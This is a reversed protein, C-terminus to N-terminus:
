LTNYTPKDVWRCSPESSALEMYSCSIFREYFSSINDQEMPHLRTKSCKGCWNQYKINLFTSQRRHPEPSYTENMDGGVFTKINLRRERDHRPEFLGLGERTLHWNRLLHGLLLGGGILLSGQTKVYPRPILRRTAQRDSIQRVALVVENILGTLPRSPAPRKNRLRRDCFLAAAQKRQKELLNPTNEQMRQLGETVYRPSPPVLGIGGLAQPFWRNAFSPAEKLVSAYTDLFVDFIKERHTKGSKVTTFDIGRLLEASLAQLEPWYTDKSQGANMGKKIKNFAIAQNFFGELKWPTPQKISTTQESWVEGSICVCPRQVYLKDQFEYSWVKGKLRNVYPELCAAYGVHERELTQPQPVWEWTDQPPRRLESNMILFERSTYNKGLSFELGCRKTVDKWRSYTSDNAIFGVDDGNIKLPFTGDAIRPDDFHVGLSVLTAAANVICLVPFSVPSGMLQGWTQQLKERFIEKGKESYHPYELGHFTLCKLALKGYPTDTLPTWGPMRDRTVQLGSSTRIIEPEINPSWLYSHAMISNICFESLEPNLNDTAARYDGSVYFDTDKLDKITGFAKRFSVDDIPHGIYEFVPHSRVAGHIFKQLELARYYEAAQGKTIIRVKLPERIAIPVASLRFDLRPCWQQDVWYQFDAVVDSWDQFYVSEVKGPRVETMGMLYFCSMGDLFRFDCFGDFLEGFGGGDQLGREYSARISPILDRHRFVKGPACGVRSGKGEPCQFITKCILEVERKVEDMVASDDAVLPKTLAKQHDILAADVYQRPVVPMGLKSMLIDFCIRRCSWNGTSARLIVKKMIRKMVSKRGPFPNGPSEEMWDVSGDKSVPPTPFEQQNMAKAFIYSTHYKLWKVATGDLLRKAYRQIFAEQCPLKQGSQVKLSDKGHLRLLANRFAQFAESAWTSPDVQCGTKDPRTLTTGEEKSL